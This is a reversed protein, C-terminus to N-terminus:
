VKSVDVMYKIIMLEESGVVGEHFILTKVVDHSVEFFLLRREFLRRWNNRMERWSKLLFYEWHNTKKIDDDLDDNFEILATRIIM